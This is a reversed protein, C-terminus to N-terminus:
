AAGAAVERALQEITPFTYPLFASLPRGVFDELEGMLAVADASDLGLHDFRRSRDVEDARTKTRQAVYAALM